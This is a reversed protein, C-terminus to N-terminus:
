AVENQRTWFARRRELAQQARKETEKVLAAKLEERVLVEGRDCLCWTIRRLVAQDDACAAAALSKARALDGQAICEIASAAVVQNVGRLFAGMAEGSGNWAFLRGVGPGFQAPRYRTDQLAGGEEVDVLSKFSEVSITAGRAV